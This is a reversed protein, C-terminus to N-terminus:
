ASPRRVPRFRGSVIGQSLVGAPHSTNWRHLAAAVDPTIWQPSYADKREIIEQAHMGLRWYAIGRCPGTGCAEDSDTTYLVAGLDSVSVQYKSGPTVLSCPAPGGITYTCLSEEGRNLTFFAMYKGNASIDFDQPNEVNASFSQTQKGDVKVILQTEQGDWKEYGLVVRRDSSCRFDTLSSTDIPNGSILDAPSHMHAGVASWGLITGCTAFLLRFEVEKQTTQNQRTLNVLILDSRLEGPDRQRLEPRDVLFAVSSAAASYAFDFVNDAIHIRERKGQCATWLDGDRMFAYCLGSDRPAHHTRKMRVKPVVGLTLLLTTVLGCRMLAPTM